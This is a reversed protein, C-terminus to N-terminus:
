FDGGNDEENDTDFGYTEMPPQYKELRNTEHNFSLFGGLGTNGTHRCKLIRVGMVDRDKESQQNRELAIITDSLQAM